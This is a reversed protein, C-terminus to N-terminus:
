SEQTKGGREKKVAGRIKAVYGLAVACDSITVRRRRGEVGAQKAALFDLFPPLVEDLTNAVVEVGDHAFRACCGEDGRFARVARYGALIRDRLEAVFRPYEERYLHDLVAEDEFSGARARRGRVRDGAGGAAPAAGPGAGIGRESKLAVDLCRFVHARVRASERVLGGLKETYRASGDVCQECRELHFYMQLLAEPLSAPESRAAGAGGGGGGAGEGAWPGGDRRDKWALAYHNLYVVCSHLINQKLHDARATGGRVQKLAPVLKKLGQLDKRFSEEIHKLTEEMVASQDPGGSDFDLKRSARRGGDDADEEDPGSRSEM